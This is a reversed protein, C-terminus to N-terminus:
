TERKLRRVGWWLLFLSLLIPALYPVYAGM